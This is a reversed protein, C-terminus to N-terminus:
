WGAPLPLNEIKVVLRPNMWMLRNWRDMQPNVVVPGRPAHSVFRAPRVPFRVRTYSQEFMPAVTIGGPVGWNEKLADLNVLNADVLLRPKTKKAAWHTM